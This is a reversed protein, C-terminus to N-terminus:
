SSFTHENCLNRIGSIIAIDSPTVSNATHRYFDLVLGCAIWGRFWHRWLPLTWTSIYYIATAMCICFHPNMSSNHFHIPVFICHKRQVTSVFYTPPHPAQTHKAGEIKLNVDGLNNYPNCTDM